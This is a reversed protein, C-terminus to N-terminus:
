EAVLIIFYFPSPLDNLYWYRVYSVLFCSLSLWKYECYEESLSPLRMALVSSRGKRSM